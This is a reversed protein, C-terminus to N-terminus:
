KQLFSHLLEASHLPPPSFFFHWWSVFHHHFKICCTLHSVRALASLYTCAWLWFVGQTTYRFAIHVQLALFFTDLLTLTSFLSHELDIYLYYYYYYYTNKFECKLADNHLFQQIKCSCQQITIWTERVVVQRKCGPRMLSQFQFEHFASPLLYCM